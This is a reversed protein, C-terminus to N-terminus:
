LYNIPNTNMESLHVAFTYNKKNLFEYFLDKTFQESEYHGVDAIIIRNDADFFQHYKYDATVFIDAGNKIADELLFSGSGGCVAVKKIKKENIATYRICETNLQQKLYKLFDLGNMDINLQGIIGSGIESSTNTLSFM